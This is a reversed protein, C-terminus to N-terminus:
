EIDKGPMAFVTRLEVPYNRSTLRGTAVYEGRAGGAVWTGDYRRSEGPRLVEETVMQAFM